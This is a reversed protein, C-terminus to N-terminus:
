DSDAVHVSCHLLAPSGVVAALVGNTEGKMSPNEIITRCNAANTKVTASWDITCLFNSM